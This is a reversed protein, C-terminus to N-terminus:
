RQSFSEALEKALAVEDPFREDMARKNWVEAGDAIVIFDGGSGRILEIKANPLANSITAAM